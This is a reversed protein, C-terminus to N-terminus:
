NCDIMRNRLYAVISIRGGHPAGTLEDIPLKDTLVKMETNCHYEHADFILTDGDRLDLAIKYEPFGLYCGSYNNPLEELITLTSRSGILDGKDIHSATRFDYNLTLTSYPSNGMTYGHSREAFDMQYAFSAPEYEEHGKAIEDCMNELEKHKIPNKESFAVKRCPLGGVADFYGACGCRVMNSQCRGCVTGDARKYQVSVLRPNTLADGNAKCLSVADKPFNAVNAVGSATGRNKTKAKAVPKIIDLYKKRNKKSINNKKVIFLIEGNEKFGMAEGKIIEDYHSENYFDARLCEFVKKCEYISM